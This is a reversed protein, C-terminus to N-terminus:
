PTATIVYETGTAKEKSRYNYEYDIKEPLVQRNGFQKICSVITDLNAWSDDNYSFVWVAKPPLLSLLENFSQEYTKSKAFRDSGDEQPFGLYAEFFSYMNGYDSQDGGYPPDVYVLDVEPKHIKLLDIADMKTAICARGNSFPLNYPLIKKFSMEHGKNRDHELRHDLKALIQGSNLRGGVYCHNMVYHIVTLAYFCRRYFLREGADQIFSQNWTRHQTTMGFTSLKSTRVDSDETMAAMKICYDLSFGEEKMNLLFSDLVLAERETFRKGIQEFAPGKTGERTKLLSNLAGAEVKIDDNEIFCVANLFSSALIENSWVAAGLGKFLYSVFSSGAFLDLVKGGSIKTQLDHRYLIEALNPLIKRKNGVYSNRISGLKFQLQRATDVWDEKPNGFLDQEIPAKM